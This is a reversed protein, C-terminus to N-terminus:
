KNDRAMDDFNVTRNLERKQSLLIIPAMRLISVSPTWGHLHCINLYGKFVQMETMMRLFFYDNELQVELFSKVFNLM